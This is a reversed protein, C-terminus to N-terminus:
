CQVRALHTMIRNRQTRSPFSPRSRRLGMCILSALGRQWRLALGKVSSSSPVSRGFSSPQPSLVKLILPSWPGKSSFAYAGLLITGVVTCIGILSKSSTPLQILSEVSSTAATSQSAPVASGSSSVNASSAGRAGHRLYFNVGAPIHM